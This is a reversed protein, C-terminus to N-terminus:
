RSMVNIGKNAKKAKDAYELLMANTKWGGSRQIDLLNAGSDIALQAWTHRADHPSLNDVGISEGWKKVLKYVAVTSLGKEVLESSKLSARVLEIQEDFSHNEIYNKLLRYFEPTELLDFLTTVGTKKRYIKMTGNNLDIASLPLSVVENVRLGYEFLLGLIVKNRAGAPTDDQMDVLQFYQKPSLFNSEEKKNSLRTIERKEDIHTADTDTYGSVLRLKANEEPSIIDAKFALKTYVKVTSLKRNVTSTSYGAALMWRVFAEVLGWTIFQWASPVAQLAESSTEIGVNALYEVFTDLDARQARITNQSKRQLYSDFIYRSAVHNAQQGVVLNKDLATNMEVLDYSM